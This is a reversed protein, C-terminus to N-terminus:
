WAECFMRETMDEQVFKSTIGTEEWDDADSPTTMMMETAATIKSTTIVMTKRKVRLFEMVLYIM